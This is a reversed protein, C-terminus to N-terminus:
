KMKLTKLVKKIYYRLLCSFINLALKNVKVGSSGFQRDLVRIPCEKVRFKYIAAIVIVETCFAYGPYKVNQFLRITNKRFARFGNQNNMIKPGFFLHILREVLAEGVRTQAKLNYYNAGLYRSGITIDAEDDLIPKILNYIDEPLHQGDSDMTVIIEGKAHNIGRLVTQGYGMNRPNKLLEIKRNKMAKQIEAISNDTSQDDVVIIEFYDRKPLKNLIAHITKEENYVPIVISILYDERKEKIGDLRKYLEVYSNSM